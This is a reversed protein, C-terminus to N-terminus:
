FKVQLIAQFAIPHLLLKNSKQSSLLATFSKAFLLYYSDFSPLDRSPVIHYIKSNLNKDSVEVKSM